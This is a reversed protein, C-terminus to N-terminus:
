VSKVKVDQLVADWVRIYDQEYLNLMEYTLAGSNRLDLLNGGFVWSDDAFQKMVEYKGASNVERFVDRTYLAPVPESLAAGSARVLVQDAGPGASLDLRLARKTDGAHELKLRSYML